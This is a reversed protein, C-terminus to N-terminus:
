FGNLQNRPERHIVTGIMHNCLQRYKETYLIALEWMEEVLPPATMEAIVPKSSINKKTLHIHIYTEIM